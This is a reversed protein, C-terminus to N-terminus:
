AERYGDAVRVAVIGDQGLKIERANFFYAAFCFDRQNQV